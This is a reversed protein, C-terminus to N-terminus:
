ALARVVATAAAAGLVVVVFPARLGLLAAAVVLASLRADVVLARGATVTSTVVLAALLAAPLLNAGRAFVAPVDRRGLLLPGAAKLVYTGAALVVLTVVATSM